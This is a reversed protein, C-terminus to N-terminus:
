KYASDSAAVYSCLKKTNTKSFAYKKHTTLNQIQVTYLFQTRPFTLM